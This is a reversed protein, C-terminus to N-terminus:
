AKKDGSFWHICDVALIADVSENVLPISQAACKLVQVDDTVFEKLKDYMDPLPESVVLKVNKGALEHVLGRTFKGTGAGLEM